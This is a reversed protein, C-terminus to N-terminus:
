TPSLLILIRPRDVAANFSDRLAGLAGPGLLAVPASRDARSSVDERPSCSSLAAAVLAARLLHRAAEARM